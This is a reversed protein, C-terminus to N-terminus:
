IGMAREIAQKKLQKWMLDLRVADRMLAAAKEESLHEPSIESLRQYRRYLKRYHRRLSGNIPKWHNGCIVEHDPDRDPNKATRRCHPVVCPTRDPNTM